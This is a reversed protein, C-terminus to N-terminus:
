IIWSLCLKVLLLPAQSVHQAMLWICTFAFSESLHHTIRRVASVPSVNSIDPSIVLMVKELPLTPTKRIWSTHPMHYNAFTYQSKSHASSHILRTNIEHPIPPFCWLHIYLRLSFLDRASNTNPFGRQDIDQPPSLIINLQVDHWWKPQSAMVDFAEM